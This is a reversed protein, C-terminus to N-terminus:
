FPDNESPIDSDRKGKFAVHLGESEVHKMGCIVADPGHDNVKAPKGTAENYHYAKMQAVLTFFRSDFEPNPIKILGRELRWRVRSIYPDKEKSFIVPIVKMGMNQLDRNDSVAESDPYIPYQGFDEKIEQKISNYSEQTWIRCDRIYLTDGQQEWFLLVAMGIFGWDLSTWKETLPDPAPLPYEEARRPDVLANDILDVVTGDPLRYTGWVRGTRAAIGGEYEVTFTESDLMLRADETDQTNLWSCEALGWEIQYFRKAKANQWTSLFWELEVEPSATSAVVRKPHKSARIIAWAANRLKRPFLVAEDISLIDAGGGRISKTSATVVELSGGKRFQTLYRTPEGELMGPFLEQNTVLPNFYELLRTAQLYSGAMHFIKLTPDRRFLHLYADAMCLTKGGRRPTKAIIQRFQPDESVIAEQFRIQGSSPAWQRYLRTINAPSISILEAALRSRGDSSSLLTAYQSSSM